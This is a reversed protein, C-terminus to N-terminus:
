GCPIHGLYSLFADVKRTSLFSPDAKGSSYVRVSGYHQHIVGYRGQIGINLLLYEFLHKHALECMLSADQDSMGDIEKM